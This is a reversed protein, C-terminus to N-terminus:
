VEPEPQECLTIFKYQDPVCRGALLPCLANRLHRTLTWKQEKVRRGPLTVTRSLSPAVHLGSTVSSCAQGTNQLDTEQEVVAEYIEYM